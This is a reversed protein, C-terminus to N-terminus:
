LERVPQALFVTAALRAVFFGLGGLVFLVPAIEFWLLAGVVTALVTLRMVTVLAFGAPAQEASVLSSVSRWLWSFYVLGFLFGVSVAILLTVYFDIM